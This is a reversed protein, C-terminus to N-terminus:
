KSKLDKAVQNLEERMDREMFVTDFFEDDKKSMEDALKNVEDVLYQMKRITRDNSSGFIKSFINLM